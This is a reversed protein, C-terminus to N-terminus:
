RPALCKVWQAVGGVWSPPSQESASPNFGPGGGHYTFGKTGPGIGYIDCALWIVCQPVPDVFIWPGCTSAGKLPFPTLFQTQTRMETVAVSQVPCLLSPQELGALSM